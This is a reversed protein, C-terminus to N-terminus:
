PLNGGAARSPALQKQWEAVKADLQTTFKRLHAEFKAAHIPALEAFTRALHAAVIRGNLPDTLYHPNCQRMSTGRRGTSCRRSRSCRSARPPMSAAPSAAELKDTARGRSLPTLWGAELEAGGELLVDAHNLKVLFSPKADV